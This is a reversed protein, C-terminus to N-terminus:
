VNEGKKASEASIQAQMNQLMTVVKRIPNATTAAADGSVSLLFMPIMRLAFM